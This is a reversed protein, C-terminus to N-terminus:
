QRGVVGRVLVGLRALQGPLHEDLDKFLRCPNGIPSFLRSGGPGSHEGEGRQPNVLCPRLRPRHGGNKQDLLV